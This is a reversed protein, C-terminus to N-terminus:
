CGFSKYKLNRLETVGCKEYLASAFLIDEINQPRLSEYQNPLNIENGYCVMANMIYKKENTFVIGNFYLPVKCSHTIIVDSNFNEEESIILSFGYTELLRQSLSLYIDTGDTVIKINGFCPLLKEIYQTYIGKEDFVTLSKNQFIQKHNTIYDTASNMLMLRPLIDPSFKTINIGEPITIDDPILINDRLIGLCTELKKWPIKGHHKDTTVTFFADGSPLTIRQSQIQPKKFITNSDSIQLIAFLNMVGM